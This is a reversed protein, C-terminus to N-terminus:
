STGETVAIPSTSAGLLVPFKDQTCNAPVCVTANVQIFNEDTIDPSAQVLSPKSVQCVQGIYTLNEGQQMVHALGPCDAHLWATLVAGRFASPSPSPCPNPPPPALFIPSQWRVLEGACHFTLPQCQSCHLLFLCMLACTCTSSLMDWGAMCHAEVTVPRMEAVGIFSRQLTVGVTM